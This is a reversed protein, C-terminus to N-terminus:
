RHATTIENTKMIEEVLQLRELDARPSQDDRLGLLEVAYRRRDWAALMAREHDDRPGRVRLLRVEGDPGRDRWLHNTGIPASESWQFAAVIRRIISSM